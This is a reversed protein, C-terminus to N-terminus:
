FCKKQVVISGYEKFEASTICMQKFTSLSSFMSAGIWGAYLRNACATIKVTAGRNAVSKLERLLRDEFGTLLTTGGAVVIEGFLSEQIELDCKIVSNIVMEHVGPSHIRLVEPMFLGEPGRYIENGVRLVKGDPLIYQKKGRKPRKIIEEVPDLAVYGLKEKIDVVMGRTVRNYHGYNRARVFRSLYETVDRGAIYLKSIAHPLCHGEFVPVTCTVGDGSEVVLGTVYGAAYLALVADNSLYFAPVNFTEFMVEVIKERIQRPNLSTETMLVPHNSPNVVLEREFLYKWLNEMEDMKKILGRVVPFQLTLTEPHYLADDGVFYEKKLMRAKCRWQPHGVVSTLVYHPRTGGSFGAKCFESGIDYIIAPSNLSRPNWM